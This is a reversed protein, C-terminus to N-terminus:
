VPMTIERVSWLAKKQSAGITEAYFDYTTVRFDQSDPAEYPLYTLVLTSSGGTTCLMLTAVRGPVPPSTQM